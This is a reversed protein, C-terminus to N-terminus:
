RGGAVSPLVVPGGTQPHRTVLAETGYTEGVRQATLVEAPSGTVAVRGDCLLTIQDCFLSALNLDHMAVIATIGDDCLSRLLRMTQIQHAIDLHTTPEDLVLVQADQALARSLLVRQREGGSTQDFSRRALHATGTREMARRAAERDSASWDIGARGEGHAYRGMTVMEVSTFGQPSAPDQPLYALLRARDRAPLDRVRYGDVRVVGRLPTLLGAVCRLLTTKGAGNPGCVAAVAGREIRLSIGQLVDTRAYGAWLDQVEVAFRGAESTGAGDRPVAPAM